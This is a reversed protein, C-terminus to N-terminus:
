PRQTPSRLRCAVVTGGGPRSRIALAGAIMEARYKMIRLGMGRVEDLEDPVGLGDDSVVLALEGDGGTLHIGINRAKGHKIANNVAEQAIRYLHSAVVTDRVVVGPDCEASCATGYVSRVNSALEEIATALGNEHGAVPCLGRAISRAEAVTRNLLGKIKAAQAAEEARRATLKGELAECLFAAGTLNQGVTDHLDRGIRQREMESIELVEKELLKRETVDIGLQLVLRSGDVDLFPYAWSHYTRGHTGTWEWEAPSRTQLVEMVPCPECPRDLCRLARYCPLDGPEGFSELFKHNRFRIRRDAAHLTVNGPLMHLVSYLQQREVNLQENASALEATREAVRQELEERARRLADASQKLDRFLLEQPQVLGTHIVARYMLYFSILKLYHGLLNALGYPSRYLTFALESAVTVVVSGVVLWLVHREFRDRHRLLIAASALLIGCIVYESVKKFPTLGAGEVYCQPFVDWYFIAGLLLATGAAYVGLLVHPNLKRKLLVAAILLSLGEVYRTAIWLQTALNTGGAPFVGMGKYALTHVLDLGGVFLYAVGVLMLYNNDLVRRSNWALAFIGCAVVVSFLEALGHFLLYSYTSAAYLGAAVAVALLAGVGM